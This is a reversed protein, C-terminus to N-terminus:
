QYSSANDRLIDAPLRSWACGECSFDNKSGLEQKRLLCLHPTVTDNFLKCHIMQVDPSGPPEAASGTADHLKM